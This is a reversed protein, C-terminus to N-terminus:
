SLTWLALTSVDKVFIRNGAFVPATWTDTGAVKYRRVPDFATQSARIVVLEGDDELSFILNGAKEIAANAAQRPESMWLTRGTKADIAVYQGMNRTSLGFIMDGSVVGTSLRMPADANEWLKQIVWQNGQRTVSFSVMPGGNGTAILTEGYLLPTFANTHNPSAFPQEWLLSGTATDMGILKTQTITIIQRIGGFEAVIPSGYGPGDGSWSWKVDGTNV